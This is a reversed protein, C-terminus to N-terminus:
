GARKRLARGLLSADDTVLSLSTIILSAPLYSTLGTSLEAEISVQPYSAPVVEAATKILHFRRAGNGDEFNAMRLNTEAEGASM